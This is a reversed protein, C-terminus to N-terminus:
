ASDELPNSAWWEAHLDDYRQWACAPCLASDNTKEGCDDCADPEPKRGAHSYAPLDTTM